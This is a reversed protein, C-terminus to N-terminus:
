NAHVHKRPHSKRALEQAKARPVSVQMARHAIECVKVLAEGRDVQFEEQAEELCQDVIPAEREPVRLLINRMRGRSRRNDIHAQVAEELECCSMKAAKRFWSNCTSATVVKRLASLKTISKPILNEDWHGAFRVFFVEYVATYRNATGFHYHLEREVYSEWTDFGWLQYAFAVRNGLLAVEANKVEWLVRCLEFTAQYHDDSVRRARDRLSQADKENMLKKTVIGTEAATM